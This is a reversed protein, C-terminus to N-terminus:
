LLGELQPQMQVEALRQQAVEFRDPDIEIGIYNRGTQVCAVGTTGSGMFPDIVTDGPDTSWEILQVCIAVDKEAEHYEHKGYYWYKSIWNHTTNPIRHGQSKPGRLYAIMDVSSRFPRGMGPMERYHYLMSAVRWTARQCQRFGQEFIAASRWDCWMFGEGDPKVVRDIEAAVDRWWHAFFQSDAISTRGNSLGGAFAYPPDTVIGDARGAELTPLIELCDGQRLDVTVSM